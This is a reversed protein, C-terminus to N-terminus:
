DVAFTMFGGYYWYDHDRGASAIQYSANGSIGFSETIWVTIGFEPYISFLIEDIAKKEEGQEDVIGDDNNDIHDDEASITEKTYGGFVGIGIFPSIRYPLSIRFGLNAGTFFNEDINESYLLAISLRGSLYESGQIVGGIEGGISDPDVRGTMGLYGFNSEEMSWFFEEALIEPTALLSFVVARILVKSIPYM